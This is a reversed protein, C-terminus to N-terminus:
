KTVRAFLWEAIESTTGTRNRIEEKVSDTINLSEEVHKDWESVDRNNSGPIFGVTCGIHIIDQQGKVVQIYTEALFRLLSAQGDGSSAVNSVTGVHLQMESRNVGPQKKESCNSSKKKEKEVNAALKKCESKHGEANQKWHDRQCSTNCYGAVLCRSCLQLDPHDKFCSSCVQRMNVPKIAVISGNSLLKVHHRVDRLETVRAVSENLEKKQLGTLRVITGVNLCTGVETSGKTCAM